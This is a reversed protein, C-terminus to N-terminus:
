KEWPAKTEAFPDGGAASGKEQDYESRLDAGIADLQDLESLQEPEVRSFKSSAPNVYVVRCTEKGKWEGREVTIQVEQDVELQQNERGGNLLKPSTSRYGLDWLTKMTFRQSNPSSLGGFWKMNVTKQEGNDLIADFKVALVASWSGDDKRSLGYDTLVGTYKGAQVLPYKKENNAM